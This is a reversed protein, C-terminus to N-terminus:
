KLKQVYKEFTEQFNIKKNQKTNQFQFSLFVLDTKQKEKKLYSKWFLIQTALPAQPFAKSPWEVEGNLPSKLLQHHHDEEILKVLFWVWQHCINPKCLFLLGWIWNSGCSWEQEHSQFSWLSSNEPVGLVFKVVGRRYWGGKSRFRVLNKKEKDKQM